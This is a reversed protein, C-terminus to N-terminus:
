LVRVDKKKAKESHKYGLSSTATAKYNYLTDFDFVKIYKTELDTLGKNSIIKSEYTFYEYIVFNFKDLGYKNFAKQLASNSKKNYLHEILRLYFDKASGIYQKENVTNYLSYIGGKGKLQERNFKITDKNNLNSLTFFPVPKLPETKSNSYYRKFIIQKKCINIFTNTNSISNYKSNLYIVPIKYLKM